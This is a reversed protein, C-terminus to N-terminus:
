KLDDLSTTHVIGQRRILNFLNIQKSDMETDKETWGVTFAVIRGKETGEVGLVSGSVPLPYETTQHIFQYM